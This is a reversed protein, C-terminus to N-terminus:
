GSREPCSLGETQVDAPTAIFHHGRTCRFHMAEAPRVVKCKVGCKLNPPLGYEPFPSTITVPCLVYDSM